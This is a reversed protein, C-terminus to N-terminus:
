ITVERNEQENAELSSDSPTKYISAVPSNEMHIVADLIRIFQPSYATGSKEALKKAARYMDFAEENMLLDFDNSLRIIQAYYPQEKMSYDSANSLDYNLDHFEIGELIDKDLGVKEVMRRGVLGHNDTEGEALSEEANESFALKGVDHLLGAMYIEDTEYDSSFLKESLVKCIEAVRRSHGGFREAKIETAAVFAEVTKFYNAKLQDYLLIREIAITINIAISDLLILNDHTFDYDSVVSFVGFNKNYNNLPLYVVRRGEELPKKVIEDEFLMDEKRNLVVKKKQKIALGLHTHDYNVKEKWVFETAYGSIAKLELFNDEDLFRVTCANLNLFFLIKDLLEHLVSEISSQRSIMNGIENIIRLEKSKKLYGQQARRELDGAVSICLIKRLVDGEFIRETATLLNQGDRFHLLIEPFDRRNIVDMCGEPFEILEKLFYHGKQLGNISNCQVNCREVVGEKDIVWVRNPLMETLHDYYAEAANFRDLQAKHMQFVRQYTRMLEMRRAKIEDRDAKLEKIRNAQKLLGEKKK